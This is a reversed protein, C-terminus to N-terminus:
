ATISPLTGIETAGPHAFKRPTDLESMSSICASGLSMVSMSRSTAAPAWGTGNM